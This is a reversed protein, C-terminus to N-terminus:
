VCTDDRGANIQCRVPCRIAGEPHQNACSFLVDAYQPAGIKDNGCYAGVKTDACSGPPQACIAGSSGKVPPKICTFACNSTHNVHGDVCQVGVNADAPDCYEGDPVGECPNAPASPPDLCLNFQYNGSCSVHYAASNHADSTMALGWCSMVTPGM